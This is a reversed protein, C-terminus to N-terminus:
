QGTWSHLRGTLPSLANGVLAEHPGKHYGNLECRCLVPYGVDNKTNHWKICRLGLIKALMRKM